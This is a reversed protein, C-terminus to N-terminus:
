ESQIRFFRRDSSATNNTFAFGGAITYQNTTLREWQDVPLALNTTGLVFYNWGPTGGNGSFLFNGASQSAASITPATTAVVWLTGDTVLKNTSWDLGADLPPLDLSTFSGTTLGATLLKFNDGAQLAEVGNNLVELTGNLAATGTVVLSDNTFPVRTLGFRATSGPNMTLGANLTLKGIGSGPAIMGSVTVAGGIIGSGGLTAGANVTVTGTAASQNGNVLLTGSSVLTTGTYSNTGAFTQTNTGTKTISVAGGGNVISGSFTTNLNKAGISYTTTSTGGGSTGSLITGLGGGLAGLTITSATNRKNVSLTGTGLNYEINAGGTSGNFRLINGGSFQVKGSFGAWSGEFDLVGTNITINLTGSGNVTQLDTLGGGNGGIVTPTGSVNLV